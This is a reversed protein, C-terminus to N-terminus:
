SARRLLSEILARTPIHQRYSARVPIIHGDKITQQPSLFVSGPILNGARGDHFLFEGEHYGLLTFDAKMGPQLSGRTSHENLLRAPESTAAAIAQQLSLGLAIFKSAVCAVNYFHPQEESLRVVDTGLASPLFGRQIAARAMDFHIHGRGPAADLYVGRALAEELRPLPTGDSRFVGGPKDTYAHTLIDGAELRGLLRTIFADIEDRSVPEDFGMGLHVMMPLGAKRATQWALEFVDVKYAYLLEGIARVKVGRVMDRNAEITQLFAAQDFAEFSAEPLVAEGFPSVNLFEFM